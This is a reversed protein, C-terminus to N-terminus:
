RSYSEIIQLVDAPADVEEKAPLRELKGVLAQRKLWPFPEEKEEMAKAVAPIKLAEKDLAITQGVKVRYSAVQVKKGDVLVHGHSILQRAARRNPTFKLRFVVSDLRSELLQFLIFDTEEKGRRATEFYRKLQRESLGYSVKLKQKETLQDKYSSPRSFRKGHMGPPIAGKRELPCAHTFCREGKLFLKVGLRRCQRCKPGIKGSM